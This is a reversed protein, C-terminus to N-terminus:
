DSFSRQKKKVEIIKPINHYKDNVYYQLWRKSVGTVRVIAALPLRELLLKDILTKTEDSVPKKQPNLVFQRGCCNCKYRQKGTKFTGNKVIEDSCCDPCNM